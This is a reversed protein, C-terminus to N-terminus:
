FGTLGKAVTFAMYYIEQRIQTFMGFHNPTSYLM